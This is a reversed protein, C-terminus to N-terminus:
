AHVRVKMKGKSAKNNDDGLYYAVLHHTGIRKFKAKVTVKGSTTEDVKGITKKRDKIVVKGSPKFGGTTIVKLKDVAGKKIHTKGSLKTATHRGLDLAAFGSDKIMSPDLSDTVIIDCANAAEPTCKLGAKNPKWSSTRVTFQKTAAHNTLTATTSQSTISCDDSTQDVFIHYSCEAIYVTTGDPDDAFGSMAVTVVQGDVLGNNPTVTVTANPVVTRPSHSAAVASGGAALGGATTALALVSAAAIKHVRM